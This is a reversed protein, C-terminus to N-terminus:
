VLLPSAGTQMVRGNHYKIVKEGVVDGDIENIIHITQTGGGNNTSNAAVVARYVGSEIGAVIQDNNAVATKRGISGVLEPGAERAIFMQGVDPFGGNAYWEVSLKPVSTPLGLAELTEAIFGKAPTTDWSFHPLKIEPLKVNDTWWTKIAEWGNSLGTKVEGFLNSWFERTFLKKLWSEDWAKKINNLSEKWAKKTDNWHATWAASQEECYVKWKTKIEGTTEDIYRSLSGMKETATDYITKYQKEAEDVTNQRTEEAKAMINDYEEETIIGADKMRLAELYIGDYQDQANKITEEKTKLASKIVESGQELNIAVTNDKLRKMILLYEEETESLHKVGADQIEGQLRNIEALESETLSRKENSAKVMIENIRAEKEAVQTQLQAYYRQNDALLENYAQEGLAAKLPELTKLAENKDSDLENKITETITKLQNKVDQVTEDSIIEGTYEITSLVDDLGRMKEIFPEVSNKTTESIKEDFIEVARPLGTLESETAVVLTTIGGVLLGVGAGVAIGIPGFFAGIAAGALTTGGITLTGNLVSLGENFMDVIGALIMGGGAFIGAVGFGIAAGMTATTAYGMKTGLRALAFVLKPGAIKGIWTALASGFLAGGGTTLLSGLLIESFNMGDLGNKLADKIGALEILVGTVTLILGVSIVTGTANGAILGSLLDLGKLFGTSLKWALIAGGIIGVITLVNKLKSKIEDLKETKLGKLFDYEFPKMDGLAGGAGASDDDGKPEGIINLEDFGMMQKKAKKLSDTYDDVGEEASGWSSQIGSTDAEFVSADFGFFKALKNAAETLIEVMVQVYPIFQTVLVSIINGLARKFRTLQSQLVRLANAPTVLTRAMDGQIHTSQEMIYNYRLMAKEAQTMKRVKTEIGKSLAYEQLTAVTTDIGFERLGKVQGSMASSLKDFATEVKTNFFSAMDYSLQTLNQSMIDASETVVGFGATLNKFVGQYQMFDKSDIGMADQVSEAFRKAEDAADGMTVNFLNVTEIYENSENFWSAMINAANKFAGYLTRTKSIQQALRDTFSKTSKSAKDANNKVKESGKATEQLGKGASKGATGLGNLNSKVTKLRGILGDLAQTASTAEAVIQIELQDITLAM